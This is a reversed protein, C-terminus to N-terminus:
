LKVIRGDFLYLVFTHEAKHRLGQFILMLVIKCKTKISLISYFKKHLDWFLFCFLHAQMVAFRM